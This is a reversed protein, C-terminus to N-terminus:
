ILRCVTEECAVGVGWALFRFGIAVIAWVAIWLLLTKLHIHLTEQKRTTTTM